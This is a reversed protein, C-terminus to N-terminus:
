QSARDTPAVSLWYAHRIARPPPGSVLQARRQTGSEPGDITNAFLVDLWQGVIM